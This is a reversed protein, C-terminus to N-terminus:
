GQRNLQLLFDFILTLVPYPKKEARKVEIEEGERKLFHCFLPLIWARSKLPMPVVYGSEASM